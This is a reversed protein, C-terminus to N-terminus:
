WRPGRGPGWSKPTLTGPRLDAPRSALIKGTNYGREVPDERGEVRGLKIGGQGGFDWSGSDCCNCDGVHSDVEPAVTPKVVPVWGPTGGLHWWERKPTTRVGYRGRDETAEAGLDVRGLRRRPHGHGPGSHSDRNPTRDNQSQSTKRTDYRSPRSRPLHDM